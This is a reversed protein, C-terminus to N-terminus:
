TTALVTRLATAARRFEDEIDQSLRRAEDATLEEVHRELQALLSALRVAGLSASSGRLRHALSAVTFLDGSNLAAAVEGLGATTDKEYAHIVFSLERPANPLARLVAILQPDLSEDPDQDPTAGTPPAPVADIVALFAGLDFPKTLYGAAGAARLRTIGEVMADASVIVVPIHCTVPDAQLRFLVQEGSMDPLHLDLLVLDPHHAAAMEIGTDGRTAVDLHVAPRLAMVREVLLVNIPNDEIYLVTRAAGM